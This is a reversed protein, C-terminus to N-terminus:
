IVKAQKLTSLDHKSLGLESLYIEENHEGVLPARRYKRLPTESPRAFPGPYTISTRLEPHEVDVWFQRDILQDFELLDKSTFVPYLMIDRKQAEEFLEAKTHAKFFRIFDNSIEDVIDQSVTQWEFEMWDVGRLTEGAMGESEIWRSLAATSEGMGPGAFAVFSIDGDQCEYLMPADVWAAKKGASIQQYRRILRGQRRIITEDEEWLALPEPGLFPVLSLQAAADIWQGEGTIGRHFLAVMTGIAAQMAGAVIYAFPFSPSLPGRDPDGTLYANGSLAWVVIDPAKYDRYPGTQGFGSLSTMIVRPNIQALAPYGLGLKEMHGPDFSELVVDAKKLLRNFIAQGDAGEIDLTIARKNINFAWWYLSKEPGPIDNYFPGISRAPDGGPKEIKIVDAGLDALLKGCIFGRENTLDLVRYPSLMGETIAM